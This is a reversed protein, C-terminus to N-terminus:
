ARWDRRRGMGPERLVEGEKEEGEWEALDNTMGQSISGLVISKM